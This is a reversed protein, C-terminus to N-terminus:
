HQKVVITNYAISKQGRRFNTTENLYAARLIGASALLCSGILIWSLTWVNQYTGDLYQVCYLFHKHSTISTNVNVTANSCMFHDVMGYALASTLGHQFIVNAFAADKQYDKPFYDAIMAKFAGEFTARGIGQLSYLVALCAFSWDKISPHFLFPIAICAFAVTGIITVIVDTGGFYCCWWTSSSCQHSLRSLYGFGLACIAAVFGHCTILFSVDLATNHADSGTLSQVVVEGTIFINLYVSSLAFAATYGFLYKIKSDTLLLRITSSITGYSLYLFHHYHQDVTSIEDNKRTKENDNTDAVRTKNVHDRTASPVDTVTSCYFQVMITAAFSLITYTAFIVHWNWQLYHIILTTVCNWVTEIILLCFAFMSAFQQLHQQLMPAEYELGTSATFFGLAGDNHGHCVEDMSNHVEADANVPINNKKSSNNGNQYSSLSLPITPSQHQDQLLLPPTSQNITTSAATIAYQQVIQTYYIAQNSTAIAAGIGGMMAGFYVMADCMSSMMILRDSDVNNPYMWIAMWFCLVYLSFLYMGFVVAHKTNKHFMIHNVYRPLGLFATITYAIYIMSDQYSAVHQQQPHLHNTNTVPTYNPVTYNFVVTSNINNSNTTMNNPDTLNYLPLQQNLQKQQQFQIAALSICSLGAAHNISYFICFWIFNTKINTATTTTQSHHFSQTDSHMLTQPALTDAMSSMPPHDNICAETNNEDVNGNYYTNRQCGDRFLDNRGDMRSRDTIIHTMMISSVVNIHDNDDYEDDQAGPHHYSM